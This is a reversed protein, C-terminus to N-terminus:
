EEEKEKLEKLKKRTIITFTKFWYILYVTLVFSSGIISVIGIAVLLAWWGSNIRLILSVIGLGISAGLLLGVAFMITIVKDVKEEDGYIM